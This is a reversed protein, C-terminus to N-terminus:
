CLSSSYLGTTTPTISIIPAPGSSPPAVPGTPDSTTPGSPMSGPSTPDSVIAAATTSPAIRFPLGCLVPRFARPNRM